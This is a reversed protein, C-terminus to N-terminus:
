ETVKKAAGKRATTRKTAAATQSQGDGAPMWNSPVYITDLEPRRNMDENDRIENGSIAGIERLSKYFNARSQMDGRLLANTSCKVYYGQEKERQTFLKEDFELEMQTIWPGLTYTVFAIMLSEIGTGWVTSGQQSQLLVLPVNYVRAFESLQFERSGLFQADEPPVSTSIFKAGEELVKIRHANDLGGKAQVSDELNKQAQPSLPMPHQIFGGSKADNAFFKAGFQEMASAMGVAQRMMTIPSYGLYGDHSLGRLHAIQDDGLEFPQGDISTRYTLADEGSPKYPRTSEPLLPWLGIAEGRNNLEVESYGNGWLLAHSLYTQKFTFANMYRNPRDRLIRTVRHDNQREANGDVERYAHFPLMAISDAIRSVCAWVGPVNLATFENVHTGAHTRSGMARFLWHGSDDLSQSPGFRGSALKSLWSM